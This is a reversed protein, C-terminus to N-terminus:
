REIKHSQLEPISDQIQDFKMSTIQRFFLVRGPDDQYFNLFQTQLNV